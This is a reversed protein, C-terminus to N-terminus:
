KQETKTKRKNTYTFKVIAIIIVIIEILDLLASTYTTTLINYIVLLANPLILIYRMTQLNKIAFAFTFIISGILPMFDFPTKWFFITISTYLAIFIILFHLTYKFNKKEAIYLYICRFISIVVLGAGVYAGVAFFAGAYFLNAVAQIIMLSSKTKLFYGICVLILAIGGLIQALIFEM